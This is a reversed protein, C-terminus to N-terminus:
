DAYDGEREAADIKSKLLDVLGVNGEFVRAVDEGDTFIINNRSGRGANTVHGVVDIDFGALPVFLLRHKRTVQGGSSDPM